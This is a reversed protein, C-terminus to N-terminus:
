QRVGAAGPRLAPFALSASVYRTEWFLLGLHAVIITLGLPVLEVWSADKVLLVALFILGLRVLYGMLAVGMMLALSIRASWALLAAALVFNVLVIALGFAASLAGDIGWVLGAVLLLVPAVPLARRVLDAAIEREVAPGDLRTVFTTGAGANGAFGSGM